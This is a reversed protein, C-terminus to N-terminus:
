KWVLCSAINPGPAMMQRGRSFHMLQKYASWCPSQSPPLRHHCSEKALGFLRSKCSKLFLQPRLQGYCLRLSSPRRVEQQSSFWVLCLHQSNIEEWLMGLSGGLGQKSLQCLLLNWALGPEKRGTVTLLLTEKWNEAPMQLCAYHSKKHHKNLELVPSPSCPSQYCWPDKSHM